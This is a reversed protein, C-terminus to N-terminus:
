GCSLANRIERIDMKIEKNSETLNQWVIKEKEHQLLCENKYVYNGNNKKKREFRMGGYVAILTTSILGGIKIIYELILTIEPRM